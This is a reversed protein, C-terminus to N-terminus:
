LILAGGFLPAKKQRRLRRREGCLRLPASACLFQKKYKM